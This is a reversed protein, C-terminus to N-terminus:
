CRAMISSPGRFGLALCQLAFVIFHLAFVFGVSLQEIQYSGSRIGFRVLNKAPDLHSVVDPTYQFPDLLCIQEDLKVNRWVIRM